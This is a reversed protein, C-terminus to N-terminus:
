SEFLRKPHIKLVGCAKELFAISPTCSQTEIHAVLSSSVGCLEAFRKQTLGSRKRHKKINQALLERIM